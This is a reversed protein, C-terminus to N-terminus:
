IVNFIILVVIIGWLKYKCEDIICDLVYEFCLLLFFVCVILNVVIFEFM